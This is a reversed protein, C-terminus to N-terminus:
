YSVLKSGLNALKRHVPSDVETPIDDFSLKPAFWKTTPCGTGVLNLEDLHSM